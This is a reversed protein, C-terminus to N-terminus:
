GPTDLLVVTNPSGPISYQYRQVKRTEPLVGTVCVQEHMLANILSSKGAKVQGMVAITTRVEQLRKLVDADGSIAHVATTM